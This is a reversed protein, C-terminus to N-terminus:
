LIFPHNSLMTLWPPPGKWPFPFHLLVPPLSKSGPFNPCLTLVHPQPLAPLSTPAMSLVPAKTGFVSLLWQSTEYLVRDSNCTAFILRATTALQLIATGGPPLTPTPPQPAWPPSSPPLHIGQLLLLAAPLPMSTSSRAKPVSRCCKNSAPPLNFAPIIMM